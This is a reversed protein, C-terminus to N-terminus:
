LSGRRATRDAPHPGAPPTQLKSDKGSQRGADNGIYTLIGCLKWTLTAFRWSLAAKLVM